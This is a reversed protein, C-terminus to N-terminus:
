FIPKRDVINSRRGGDSVTAFCSDELGFTRIPWSAFVLCVGCGV